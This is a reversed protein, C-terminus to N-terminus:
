IRMGIRADRACERLYKLLDDTPAVTTRDQEHEERTFSLVEETDDKIDIIKPYYTVPVRTIDLYQPPINWSSTSLQLQLSSSPLMSDGQAYDVCFLLSRQWAQQIEGAAEQEDDIGAVIDMFVDETDAIPAIASVDTTGGEIVEKLTYMKGLETESTTSTALQWYKALDTVGTIESLETNKRDSPMHIGMSAFVYAVENQYFSVPRMGAPIHIIPMKAADHVEVSLSDDTANRVRSFAVSIGTDLYIASSNLGFKKHQRDYTMAIDVSTIFQPIHELNRLLGVLEIPMRNDVPMIGTVTIDTTGRHMSLDILETVEVELNGLRDLVEQKDAARPEFNM